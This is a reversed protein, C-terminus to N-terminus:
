RPKPQSDIGAAQWIEDLVRRLIDEAKADLNEILVPFLILKETDIKNGDKYILGEFDPFIKKADLLSIKVFIPPKIEIVKALKLYTNLGSILFKRIGSGSINGNSSIMACEMASNRFLQLYEYDEGSRLGDSNYRPYRYNKLEQFAPEMEIHKMPDLSEFPILHMIGRGPKQDGDNRSIQAFRDECFKNIWNAIKKNKEIEDIQEFM